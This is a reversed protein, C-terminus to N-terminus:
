VAPTAKAICGKLAAEVAFGGLYYSGDFQGAALLAAADRIRVVSLQQFESRLM